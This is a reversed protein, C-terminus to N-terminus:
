GSGLWSHVKIGPGGQQLQNVLGNSSGLNTKVLAAAILAPVAAAEVQGLVGKLARGLKGFRGM